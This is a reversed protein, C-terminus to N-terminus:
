ASEVLGERAAQARHREIGSIQQDARQILNDLETEALRPEADAVEKLARWLGRKGHVGLLLAELELLNRLSESTRGTVTFKLRSLKEAVWSSAQKVPSRDVGFREMLQQLTTQDSRVERLLGELFEALPKGQNHDISQEILDVAAVSGALHDNLYVNLSEQALVDEGRLL